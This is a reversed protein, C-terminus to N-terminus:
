AALPEQEEARPDHPKKEPCNLFTMLHLIWDFEVIIDEKTADLTEARDPGPSFYLTHLFSFLITGPVQKPFHLM